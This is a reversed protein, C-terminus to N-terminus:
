VLHPDEPPAHILSAETRLIMGSRPNFDTACHICHAHGEPLPGDGFPTVTVVSGDGIKMSKVPTLVKKCGGKLCLPCVTNKYLNEEEEVAKTLVDPVGETLKRIKDPDM